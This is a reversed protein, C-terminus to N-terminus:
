LYWDADAGIWQRLLEGKPDRQGSFGPKHGMGIGGRGPMGKIGVVRHGGFLIADRHGRWLKIDIFEKGPQCARRFAAIAPGRM